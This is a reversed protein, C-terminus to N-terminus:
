ITKRGVDFGFRLWKFEFVWLDPYKHLKYFPRIFKKDSFRYTNAFGKRGILYHNYSGFLTKM